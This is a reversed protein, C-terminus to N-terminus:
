NNYLEMIIFLLLGVIELAGYNGVAGHEIAITPSTPNGRNLLLRSTESNMFNRLIREFDTKPWLSKKLSCRKAPM